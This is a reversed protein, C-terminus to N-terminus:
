LIQRASKTLFLILLFSRIKQWILKHELERCKCCLQNGLDNAVDVLQRAVGCVSVADGVAKEVKLPCDVAARGFSHESHSREGLTPWWQIM